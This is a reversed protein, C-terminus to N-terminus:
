RPFRFDMLTDGCRRDCAATLLLRGEAQCDVHSWGTDSGETEIAWEVGDAPSLISFCASRISSCADLILCGEAGTLRMTRLGACGCLSFNRLRMHETSVGCTVEKTGASRTNSDTRSPTGKSCNRRTPRTSSRSCAGPGEAGIARAHSWRAGPCTPTAEGQWIGIENNLLSRPDQPLHRRSCSPPSRPHYTKVDTPELFASKSLSACACSPQRDSRYVGALRDMNERSQYGHRLDSIRLDALPLTVVRFWLWDGLSTM